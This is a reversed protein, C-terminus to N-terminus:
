SQADLLKFEESLALIEKLKESITLHAPFETEGFFEQFDRPIKTPADNVINTIKNLIESTIQNYANM